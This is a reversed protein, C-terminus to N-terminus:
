FFIKLIIQFKFEFNRVLNEGDVFIFHEQFMYIGAIFTSIFAIKFFVLHITKFQNTFVSM